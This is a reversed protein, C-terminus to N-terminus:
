RLDGPFSQLADLLLELDHTQYRQDLPLTLLAASLKREEAFDGSPLHDLTWHVACYIRRDRLYRRLANRQGRPVRVPFGLPVEGDDLTDFLPLLGSLKTSLSLGDRLFEWNSRRRTTVTGLDTARLLQGSLWSMRRPVLPDLLSEAHEFVRLYTDDAARAGRLLKGVVKASIFGEDSPAADAAVPLRSALLAGDPQPLLKRLSSVAYDGHTGIASTLGAQVCDEIIRVGGARLTEIQNLAFRNRWGFYHIILLVDGNAPRAEVHELDPGVRYFSIDFGHGIFPTVVSECCYAPVWVKRRAGRLLADRAAVALASRGFDIWTEHVAGFGQLPTDLSPDFILDTPRLEFEGGLLPLESRSM